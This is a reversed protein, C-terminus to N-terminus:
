KEEEQKRPWAPAMAEAPDVSAGGAVHECPGFDRIPM